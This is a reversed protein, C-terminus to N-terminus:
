QKFIIFMCRVTHVYMIECTSNVSIICITPYNRGDTHSKTNTHVCQINILLQLQNKKEQPTGSNTPVALFKPARLPLPFTQIFLSCGWGVEEGAGRAQLLSGWQWWECSDACMCVSWKKRHSSCGRMEWMDDFLCKSSCQHGRHIIIFNGEWSFGLSVCWTVRFDPVPLYIISIKIFHNNETEM